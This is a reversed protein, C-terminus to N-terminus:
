CVSVVKKCRRDKVLNKEKVILNPHAAKTITTSAKGLVSANSCESFFMRPFAISFFDSTLYDHGTKETIRTLPIQTEKLHHHINKTIDINLKLVGAFLRCDPYCKNFFKSLNYFFQISVLTTTNNCGPNQDAIM